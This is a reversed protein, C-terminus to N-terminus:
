CWCCGCVGRCVGCIKWASATSAQLVAVTVSPRATYKHLAFSVLVHMFISGFLTLLTLMCLWHQKRRLAVQWRTGGKSSSGAHLATCVSDVRPAPRPPHSPTRLSARRPHPTKAWAWPPAPWTCTPGSARGQCTLQSSRTALQSCLMMAEARHEKIALWCQPCMGALMHGQRQCTPHTAASAALSAGGVCARAEMSAAGRRGEWFAGPAAGCGNMNVRCDSKEKRHRSMATQVHTHTHAHTHGQPPPPPPPPSRATSDHRRIPITRYPICISQFSCPLPGAVFSVATLVRQLMRNKPHGNHGRTHCPNTEYILGGVRASRHCRIAPGIAVRLDHEVCLCTCVGVPLHAQCVREHCVPASNPVYWLCQQRALERTTNREAGITGACAQRAAGRRACACM